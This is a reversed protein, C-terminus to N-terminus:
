PLGTKEIVGADIRDQMIPVANGVRRTKWIAHGDQVPIANGLKRERGDGDQPAVQGDGPAAVKAQQGIRDSSAGNPVEVLVQMLGGDDIEMRPFNVRM